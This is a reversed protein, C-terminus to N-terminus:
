MNVEKKDIGLHAEHCSIIIIIIDAIPTHQKCLNMIQVESSYWSSKIPALDVYTVGAKGQGGDLGKVIRWGTSVCFEYVLLPRAFRAESRTIIIISIM